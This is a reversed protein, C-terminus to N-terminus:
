QLSMLPPGAPGTDPPAPAPLSATTSPVIAANPQAPSDVATDTAAPQTDPQTDADDPCPVYLTPSWRGDDHRVMLYAHLECDAFADPLALRLHKERRYAPASLFGQGLDPAYVYLYVLDYAAGHGRDFSVSLVNGDERVATAAAVPAVDGLSLQLRSWDVCLRSDTQGFAHQNLSVFLNFATMGAQRAPGTLTTTVAWRLRAALQVQQKFLTRHAMQAATQPNHVYPQHSRMCWRGNWQYGIVPGLRGSFGGLFGSTQKAM